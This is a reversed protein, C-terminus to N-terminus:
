GGLFTASTHIPYSTPHTGSCIQICNCSSYDTSRSPILDQDGLSNSSVKSVSSDRTVYHSASLALIVGVWMIQFTPQAVKAKLAEYLLVCTLYERFM